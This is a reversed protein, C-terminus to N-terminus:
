GPHPSYPIKKLWLRLAEYYIASVVKLTMFPYTSLITALSRSSIERRRLALTAYFLPKGSQENEIHVKLTEEPVTFHWRYQLDMKMFPSVHFHKNTCYRKSQLDGLNHNEDLVYCFREGWPTNNVEAVITEVTENKADFCYYFSVPNFGYGCYRLHTLLCIRGSPSNGTEKEILDVVAATLPVHAAGLHDERRFWALAPKESSWLWYRDFLCPLEELDLYMMFLKYQFQHSQPIFRHHKVQGEYICSHM